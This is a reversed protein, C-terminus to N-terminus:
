LKGFLPLWTRNKFYKTGDLHTEFSKDMGRLNEGKVNEEKMAEIQASLIQAHLNTHITMVLARVRLPNIRERRSLANAVVNAKGTREKAIGPYDKSTGQTREQKPLLDSDFPMVQFEYHGYRTRFATKSIDEERVRLQHYCIQARRMGSNVRFVMNM